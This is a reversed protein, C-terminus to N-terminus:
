NSSKTERRREKEGERRREQIIMDQFLFQNLASMSFFQLGIRARRILIPSIM